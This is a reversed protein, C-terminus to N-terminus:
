WELRAMAFAGTNPTALSPCQSLVAFTSNALAQGAQSDSRYHVGLVERNRAVREALRDLLSAAPTGLTATTTANLPNSVVNPMVGNLMLSVLYAQTAHGSPYSAHGPVAIPPMLAPSLQSPRARQFQRKWYMAVFEGVVIATRVLRFTWPHSAPSFMLLGAWYGIPDTMQALAESMVEPRYESLRALNDLEGMPGTVAAGGPPNPILTVVSWDLGVLAPQVFEGLVTVGFLTADWALEPFTVNTNRYIPGPVSSSPPWPVIDSPAWLVAPYWGAPGAV